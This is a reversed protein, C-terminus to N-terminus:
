IFNSLSSNTSQEGRSEPTSAKVAADRVKLRKMDIAGNINGELGSNCTLQSGPKVGDPCEGPTTKNFDGATVADVFPSGHFGPFGEASKEGTATAIAAATLAAGLVGFKSM